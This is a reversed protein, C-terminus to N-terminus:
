RLERKLMCDWFVWASPVHPWAALQPTTFSLNEEPQNSVSKQVAFRVTSIWEVPQSICSGLVPMGFQHLRHSVGDCM